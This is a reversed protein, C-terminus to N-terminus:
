QQALIARDRFSRIISTYEKAKNTIVWPTRASIANRDVLDGGVGLAFAGAELFEASRSVTVGGTPIVEIHPFPAKLAELYSAGGM